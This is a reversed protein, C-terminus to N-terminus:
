QLSSKYQRLIRRVEAISPRNAMRSILEPLEHWKRGWGLLRGADDVVMAQRPDAPPNAPSNAPPDAPGPDTQERDAARAVRPRTMERTGEDRSAAPTRAGRTRVTPAPHADTQMGPPELAAAPAISTTQDAAPTRESQPEALPIFRRIHQSGVLNALFGMHELADAFKVDGMDIRAAHQERLQRLKQLALEVVWRSPREHPPWPQVRRYAEEDLAAYKLHLELSTLWKELLDGLRKDAPNV